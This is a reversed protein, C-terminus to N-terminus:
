VAKNPDDWVQVYNLYAFFDNDVDISYLAATRWTIVNKSAICGKSRSLGAVLGFIAGYVM